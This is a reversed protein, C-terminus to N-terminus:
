WDKMNSNSAKNGVGTAFFVFQMDKNSLKHGYVRRKIVSWLNEISNLDLFKSHDNLKKEWLQIYLIQHLM